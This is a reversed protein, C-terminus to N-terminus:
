IGGEGGVSAGLRPTKQRWLHAAALGLSGGSVDVGLDFLEAWWGPWKGQTLIQIGEQLVGVLLVVGFMWLAIKRGAPFARAGLVVLVAYLLFHMVVHVWGPAFLCDFIRRSLPWYGVAFAMPFLIGMLWLWFVVGPLRRWPKDPRAM